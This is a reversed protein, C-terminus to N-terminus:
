FRLFFGASLYFGSFNLEAKRVNRFHPGSPATEHLGSGPEWKGLVEEDYSYLTGEFTEIESKYTGTINKFKLVRYRGSLFVGFSSSLSLDLKAGGGFGITSKKMDADSRTPMIVFSGGYAYAHHMSFSGSYYGVDAFLDMSLTQAPIIFHFKVYPGYISAKLEQTAQMYNGMSDDIRMTSNTKGSNLSFGIGIGLNRAPYYSVEVDGGLLNKLEKLEGTKTFGYGGFFDLIGNWIKGEGVFDEPSVLAYTFNFSFGFRASQPSPAPLSPSPPSVPRAPTVPKPRPAPVVVKEVQVRALKSWVYGVTGDARRVKYWTGLDELLELKEGMKAVFLIEGQASPMSRVSADRTMVMYRKEVRSQSFAYGLVMFFGLILVSFNKM